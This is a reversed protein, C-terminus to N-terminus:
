FPSVAVAWGVWAAGLGAFSLHGVWQDASPAVADAPPRHRYRQQAAALFLLSVVFLLLSGTPALSLWRPPLTAMTGPLTMALLGYLAACTGVARAQELSSAGNPRPYRRAVQLVGALSVVGAGYVYLLDPPLM